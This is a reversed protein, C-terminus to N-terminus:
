FKVDLIAEYLHQLQSMTFVDPLLEFGIPEFHIKERLKDMATQIILGHDFALPPMNDM